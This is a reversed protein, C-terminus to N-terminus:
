VVSKRMALATTKVTEFGLLFIARSVTTVPTGSADRYFVTNALRLMKQTLAVDALIFHALGGVADSDSSALQIVRSIAVGLAPLGESQAISKLLAERATAAEAVVNDTPPKIASPPM